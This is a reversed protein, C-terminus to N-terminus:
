WKQHWDLHEVKQVQIFSTQDVTTNCEAFPVHSLIDFFNSSADLKGCLEFSLRGFIYPLPHVLHHSVSAFTQDHFCGVGRINQVSPSIIPNLDTTEFTINLIEDIRTQKKFTLGSYM